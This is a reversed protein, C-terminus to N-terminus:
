PSKDVFADGVKKEYLLLSKQLEAIREEEFRLRNQLEAIEKDKEKMIDGRQVIVEEAQQLEIELNLCKDKLEAIEKDAANLRDSASAILEKLQDLASARANKCKREVFDALEERLGKGDKVLIADDKVLTFYNIIADIKDEIM